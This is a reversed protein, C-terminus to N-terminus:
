SKRISYQMCIFSKDEYFNKTDENRLAEKFKKHLFSLILFSETVILSGATSRKVPNNLSQIATTSSSIVM